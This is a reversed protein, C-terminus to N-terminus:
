LPAIYRLIGPLIVMLSESAEESAKQTDKLRYFPSLGTTGFKENRLDFTIGSETVMKQFAVKTLPDSDLWMRAPADIFNCVYNITAENLRQLGEYDDIKGEIGLRKVRLSNQYEDKENKSIDGDLFSQLAKRIDTDIKSLEKRHKDLQTNIFTLKRSAVRRVIDRFLKVMSETPTIDNLFAEFLEEARDIAKSGMGTCRTCHYRPSRNGSGTTPASGTLPKHCKVCLLSHKLPYEAAFRPREADPKRGELIAQNRHYTDLSILGKHQGQVPERDTMQNCIYGAYTINTLLNKISQPAFSDGKSPKLGVGNAYQALEAQNIDGKSFRELVRAVKEATGNKTDPALTLREKVKGDKNREGIPVRKRIYGHPINGQWWGQRAVLRMNDKVTQSKTDNDYQYMALSVNRMLRGQPTDDINEMTSYLQVGMASLHYGIDRMFSEMDRSIRSLNYIVVGGIDNDRSALTKLMSQLGPRNASRASFGEDCYIDVVELNNREAYANIALEQNYLSMGDVQEETSVRRYGYVKTKSREAV